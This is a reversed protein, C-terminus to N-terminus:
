YPRTPESIHILSLYEGADMNHVINTTVTMIGTWGSYTIQTPTYKQYVTYFQHPTTNSIAGNSINITVSTATKATIPHSKNYGWDSTRPYYHITNGGDQGCIFGFSQKAIKIGDGIDLDHAGIDITLLGTTPDYATTSGAALSPNYGKIPSKGVNVEITGNQARIGNLEAKLFAHTSTDPSIGVNVEFTDNTKNSIQLWRGSAPDSPRPYKHDTTYGDLNCRFTLSEDVIQIYDGNSLGHATLTIVMVGTAPTFVAGSATGSNYSDRICM